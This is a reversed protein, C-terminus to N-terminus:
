SAVASIAWLYDIAVAFMELNFVASKEITVAILPPELIIEFEFTDISPACIGISYTGACTVVAANAAFNRLLLPVHGRTTVIASIKVNRVTSTCAYRGGIFM